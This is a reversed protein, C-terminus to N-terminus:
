IWTVNYKAEIEKRKAFAADSLPRLRESREKGFANRANEANIAQWLAQEEASANLEARAARQRETLADKAEKNIVKSPKGTHRTACTRGYYVVEGGADIAVTCKLGTKGCCSCSTVEDTIGLVKM